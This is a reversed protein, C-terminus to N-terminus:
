SPRLTIQGEPTWAAFHILDIREVTGAETGADLFAQRAAALARRTLPRRPRDVLINTAGMGRLDAVLADLSRYRLSVRDVDVVPLEFEASQLLGAFAGAGIRPHVRPAVGRGDLQDAALMASRLAPLSEQGPFVGLFLAGPALLHRIAQLLAPLEDATDLQGLAILLDFSGPPFAALEDISPALLLQEAAATLPEAVEELPAGVLLGRGFRRRVLSLRETLDALAREVLFLQPGQNLARTRRLALAQKDFLPDAM